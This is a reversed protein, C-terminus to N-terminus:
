WKKIPMRVENALRYVKKPGGRGESRICFSEIVGKKKLGEAIMNLLWKQNYFNKLLEQRATEGQSRLKNWDERSRGFWQIEEPLITL